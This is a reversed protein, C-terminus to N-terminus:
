ILRLADLIAEMPTVIVKKKGKSDTFDAIAMGICGTSNEDNSEKSKDEVIYICTGSDGKEFPLNEMLLQHYFRVFRPNQEEEEGLKTILKTQFHADTSVSLPKPNMTKVKEFQESIDEWKAPVGHMTTKDKFNEKIKDYDEFIVDREIYGSIAGAIRAKMVGKRNEITKYNEDIYPSKM